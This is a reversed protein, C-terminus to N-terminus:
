YSVYNVSYISGDQLTTYERIYNGNLNIMSTLTRRGSQTLKYHEIDSYSLGSARGNIQVILHENEIALIEDYVQVGTLTGEYIMDHNFNEYGIKEEPEGDEQFITTNQRENEAVIYTNVTEARMVILLATVALIYVVIDIITYFLTNIENTAM